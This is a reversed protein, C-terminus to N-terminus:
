LGINSTNKYKTEADLETNSTDEYTTERNKPANTNEPTHEKNSDSVGTISCTNSNDDIM